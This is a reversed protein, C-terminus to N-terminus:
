SLFKDMILAGVFFGIGFGILSLLLEMAECM